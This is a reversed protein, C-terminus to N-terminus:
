IRYKVSPKEAANGPTPITMIVFFFVLWVFILLRFNTILASDSNQIQTSRYVVEPSNGLYRVVTKHNQIQM